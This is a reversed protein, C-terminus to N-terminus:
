ACPPYVEHWNQGGFPLLSLFPFGASPCTGCCLLLLSPPFFIFRTYIDIRLDELRFLFLPPPHSLFSSALSSPPKKLKGSQALPASRSGLFSMESHTLWYFFLRSCLLPAGNESRAPQYGSEFLFANMIPYFFDPARIPPFLSRRVKVQSLWALPFLQCRSLLASPPQQFTGREDSGM